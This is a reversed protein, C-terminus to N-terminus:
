ELLEQARNEGFLRVGEEWAANVLEPPVTKTVAMLRVEGPDRGSSRAAEAIRDRIERLNQRVEEPTSRNEMM